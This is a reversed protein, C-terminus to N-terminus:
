GIVSSEMAIVGRENLEAGDDAETLYLLNLNAHRLRRGLPWDFKDDLIFDNNGLLESKLSACSAVILTTFTM